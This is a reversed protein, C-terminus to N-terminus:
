RGGDRYFRAVVEMAPKNWPSHSHDDPGGMGNTGVKWWYVGHFWSKEYFASLVAEYARAQHGMSLARRTEDWPARHPNEMSVFGAEPFIVPKDFRRHVAEVKAVIESADLSDPLPYYNNLGIYDLADWFALSEFEEGQTAGYTLPGPYIARVHGILDRWHQEHRSMKVFEVGVCFLDAHVREALRAHFEIYSRYNAFWTSADEQSRMEIDGPFGRRLWVQPKIMVRFGRHRALRAIIEVDSPDEMGGRTRFRIEPSQRDPAFAYPVLAIADVGYSALEDLMRGAAEPSYNAPWEATLNVGKQFFHRPYPADGHVAPLTAIMSQRVAKRQAERGADIQRGGYLTAVLVFLGAALGVAVTTWSVDLRETRRRLIFLAFAVAIVVALIFAAALFGTRAYLLWYVCAAAGYGTIILPNRASAMGAAVVVFLFLSLVLYMPSPEQPSIAVALPWRLAAFALSATWLAAALPTHRLFRASLRAVLLAVAAALLFTPLDTRIMRPGIHLPTLVLEPLDGSRLLVPTLNVLAMALYYLPYYLLFGALFPRIKPETQTWNM